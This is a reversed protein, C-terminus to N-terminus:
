WKKPKLYLDFINMKSWKNPNLAADQCTADYYMVRGSISADVFACFEDVTYPLYAAVEHGRNKFRMIWHSYHNKKFVKVVTNAGCLRAGISARFHKYNVIKDTTGHFFCTPAPPTAYNMKGNHAYVAGAYPIVAAPLFDKPLEAAQPLGNARAYDTQLSMIAGASCGTLIIHKPDINLTTANNCLFAIAASCDETAINIANEFVRHMKLAPITDFRLNKLGLRYDISAVYFGKEVLANCARESEKGNRSGEFFGGGFCYIVCAKDARPNQPTYFDLKLSISDRKVYEFTKVQAMLNTALLSLVIVIIFKRMIFLM